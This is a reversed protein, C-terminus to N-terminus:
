AVQEDTPPEEPVPRRRADRWYALVMSFLLSAVFAVAGIKKLSPGTPGGPPLPEDIVSFSATSSAESLRAGEYNETLGAVVEGKIEVQRQLRLYETSRAPFERMMALAERKQERITAMQATIESIQQSHGLAEGVLTSYSPDITLGRRVVEMDEDTLEALQEEASELDSITSAVDPHQESKGQVETQETIEQRLDLIQQRLSDISPNRSESVSSIDMKEQTSLREEAATRRAQAGQLETELEAERQQLRELKQVAAGTQDSPNVLGERTAYRVLEDEAEILERTATELQEELVARRRTAETYDTRSVEQELSAIMAEAVEAALRAAETEGSSNQALPEGPITTQLILVQSVPLEFDCIELLQGTAAGRSPANLREALDLDDVVRARVARSELLVKLLEGRGGRSVMRPALESLASLKVSSEEEFIISTSSEWTTPVSVYGYLVAVLTIIVALAVIFIWNRKIPATLDDLTFEQM